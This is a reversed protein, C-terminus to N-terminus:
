AILYNWASRRITSRVTEIYFPKRRNLEALIWPVFIGTFACAVAVISTHGYGFSEIIHRTASIAMPHWLYIPFSVNAVFELSRNNPLYKTFLLFISCGYCLAVPSTKAIPNIVGWLGCQHIAMSGLFLILSIITINPSHYHFKQCNLFIGFCFYPLLYLTQSISLIRVERFLGGVVFGTLGLILWMRFKPYIFIDILSM